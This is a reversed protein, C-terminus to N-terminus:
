REDEHGKKMMMFSVMVGIAFGLTTTGFLLVARPMTITIFLIKTVVPETNQLVVIFILASLILTIILKTHQM